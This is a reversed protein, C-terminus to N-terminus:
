LDQNTASVLTCSAYVPVQFVNQSSATASRNDSTTLTLRAYFSGVQTSGAAPIVNLIRNNPTPNVIISAPLVTGQDRNATFRFQFRNGGIANLQNRNATAVFGENRNTNVGRLEARVSQVDGVATFPVLVSTSTTFLSGDANRVEDCAVSQGNFRLNTQLGEIQIAAGPAVTITGCSALLGVGAVTLLINKM